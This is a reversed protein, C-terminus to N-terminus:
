YLYICIRGDGKLVVLVLIEGSSNIIEKTGELKCWIKKIGEAKQRHHSELRGLAFSFPTVEWLLVSINENYWERVTSWFIAACTPPHPDEMHLVTSLKTQSRRDYWSAPSFGLLVLWVIQRSCIDLIQEAPLILLANCLVTSHSNLCSQKWM